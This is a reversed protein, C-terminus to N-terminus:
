LWLFAGALLAIILVAAVIWAQRGPAQAAPLIAASCAPCFDAGEYVPRGCEPCPVTRSDDEDDEVFAPDDDGEDEEADDAASWDDEVEFEDDPDRGPPLTSPM